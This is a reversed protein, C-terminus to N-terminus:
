PEPSAQPGRWPEPRLWRMVYGFCAGAVAGAFSGLATIAVLDQFAVRQFLPEGGVIALLGAVLLTSLISAIGGALALRWVKLAAYRRLVAYTVPLALMTVPAAHLLGDIFGALLLMLVMAMAFSGGRGGLGLAVSLTLAGVLAAVPAVLVGVLFPM